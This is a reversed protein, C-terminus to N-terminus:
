AWIGNGLSMQEDGYAVMGSTDLDETQLTWSAADFGIVEASGPATSLGSSYTTGDSLDALELMPDLLTMGGGDQGMQDAQPLKAMM